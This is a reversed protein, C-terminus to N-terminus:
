KNRVSLIVQDIESQAYGQFLMQYEQGDLVFVDVKVMGGQPDGMQFGKMTPTSFSYLPSDTVSTQKLMLFYIALVTDLRNFPSVSDPTLELMYKEYDYDTQIGKSEILAQLVKSQSSSALEKLGSNESVILRKSKNAPDSFVMGVPGQKAELHAAPLMFTIEKYYYSGADISQQENGLLRPILRASVIEPHQIAIFRLALYSSFYWLIGGVILVWPIIMLTLRVPKSM